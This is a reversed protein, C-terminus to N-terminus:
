QGASWPLWQSLSGTQATPTPLRLELTDDTCTTGSPAYEISFPAPRLRDAYALYGDISLADAIVNIEHQSRDRRATELAWTADLEILAKIVPAVADAQRQRGVAALLQYADAGQGAERLTATMTLIDQPSRSQAFTDLLQFAYQAGGNRRLEGVVAAVHAPSGQAGAIDLLEFATEFDDDSRLLIWMSGIFFRVDETALEAFRDPRKRIQRFLALVEQELEAPSKASGTGEPDPRSEPDSTTDPNTAADASPIDAPNDAHLDRALREIREAGDDLHRAAKALADDIDDAEPDASHKGSSRPTLGTLVPSNDPQGSQCRLRQLEETLLRVQETAEDALRDAKNRESQARRLEDEAKKRQIESRALRERVQDLLGPGGTHHRLRDRQATLSATTRNLTDVMTLLVVVMRNANDRERELDAAREWARLLKDHVDLSRRQVRVLEEAREQGRSHTPPSPAASRSAYDQTAARAQQLLQELEVADHSCVDAVAEVFADDLNTGALREAVTTRSPVRGDRFHDGTLKAYLADVTMDADDLWRRLLRATRNAQETTGKVPGWPRTRRSRQAM